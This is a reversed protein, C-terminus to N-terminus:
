KPVSAGSMIKDCISMGNEYSCQSAILNSVILKILIMEHEVRSRTQTIEGQFYLM